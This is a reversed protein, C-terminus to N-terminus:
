KMLKLKEKSGDLNILYNDKIDKINKYNNYNDMVNTYLLNYYEDYNFLGITNDEKLFVIYVFDDVTVKKIKTIDSTVNVKFGKLKNNNIYIDYYFARDYLTTLREKLNDGGSLMKIEEKNIPVIYSNGDDTLYVSVYDLSINDIIKVENVIINNDEKFKIKDFIIYSLLIFIIIILAIILSNKKM